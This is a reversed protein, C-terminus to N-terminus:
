RRKRKENQKNKEFLSRRIDAIEKKHFDKLQELEAAVLVERFALMKVFEADDAILTGQSFEQLKRQYAEFLEAPTKKMKKM